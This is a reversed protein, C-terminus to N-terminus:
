VVLAARRRQIAVTAARRHQFIQRLSAPVVTPRRRFELYPHEQLTMPYAGRDCRALICPKLLM